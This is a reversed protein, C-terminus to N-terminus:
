SVVGAALSTSCVTAGPLSTCDIGDALPCGGCSELDEMIAISRLFPDTLSVPVPIPPATHLLIPTSGRFRPAFSLDLREIVPNWAKRWGSRHVTTIQESDAAVDEVHRVVREFSWEDRAGPGRERGELRAGRWHRKRRLREPISWSGTRLYRESVRRGCLRKVTEPHDRM